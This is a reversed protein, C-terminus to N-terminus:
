GRCTRNYKCKYIKYKHIPSIYEPRSVYVVYDPFELQPGNLKDNCRSCKPLWQQQIGVYRYHITNYVTTQTEMKHPELLQMLFHNPTRLNIPHQLELHHCTYLIARVM